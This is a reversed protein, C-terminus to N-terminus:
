VQGDTTRFREYVDKTYQILYSRDKEKVIQFVGKLPTNLDYIVIAMVAITGVLMSWCLKLQFGGLFRLASRDTMIFFIVCITTALLGLNGYHWMPFQQDYVSAMSSRLAIIRNVTGYSEDLVRSNVDVTKDSSMDHLLVMLQETTTQRISRQEEMQAVSLEEEMVYLVGAAYFQLLGRAKSRYEPPFYTFHIDALRVDELLSAFKQAITCQRSYLNSLTMSSLSGFLLSIFTTIPGNLAPGILDSLYAGGDVAEWTNQSAYEVFTHFSKSTDEYFLFALMSLIAPAALVIYEETSPEKGGFTLPDKNHINHSNNSNTNEGVGKALLITRPVYRGANSLLSQSKTNITTTTVTKLHKRTHVSSNFPNTGRSNTKTTVFCRTLPIQHLFLVSGLLSLLLISSTNKKRDSCYCVGGLSRNQYRPAKM